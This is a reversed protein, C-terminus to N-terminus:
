RGTWRLDANLLGACQLERIRNLRRYRPGAAHEPRLGYRRYAEVLHAVGREVTGTPRYLPVEAAIRECSVRYDRHDSGAKEDLTVVTGPVASAVIAAVDRIRYNEATRGVNFARGRVADTPAVLLAAFAAAIDQVDVLPRWASGDSRLVVEGTLVAQATLDNVVLDTRLRPSYGYATGSRLFAPAFGDHALAGLAREAQAKSEAYHTLPALPSAETLLVNDASAGYVSCSSSFLFRRVGASRAAEALRVTADLNIEYTRTLDLDGLPDNSLAALHIVADVGDLDPYNDDRLDLRVGEADAVPGFTCDAFLGIDVGIVDHGRAHLLPVLVSGIYGQHGTIVVRM